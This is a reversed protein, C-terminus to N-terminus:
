AVPRGDESLLTSLCRRVTARLSEDRIGGLWESVESELHAAAQEWNGAVLAAHLKEGLTLAQTSDSNMAVSKSLYLGNGGFAFLEPRSCDWSGEWKIAKLGHGDDFCTAITFLAALSVADEFDDNEILQRLAADDTAHFHPSLAQLLVGTNQSDSEALAISLDAALDYLNWSIEQWSPDNEEAIRAIYIAGDGPNSEDMRYGEFLARIVPTIKDLILIGTATYYSNSM